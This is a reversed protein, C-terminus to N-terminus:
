LAITCGDSRIISINIFPNEFWIAGVGGNIWINPKEGRYVTNKNIVGAPLVDAVARACKRYLTEIKADWRCSVVANYEKDGYFASVNYKM